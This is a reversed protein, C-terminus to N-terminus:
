IDLYGEFVLTAPGKLWVNKYGEETKDFSVQLIGGPTRLEIPSELHDYKEHIAIATATVGTGCSMTENEVGREYTRLYFDGQLSEVFNVNIGEEKYVDNYRIEHAIPIINLQHVDSIFRVYHPSGTDLIYDDESNDIHDVDKLQIEIQDGVRGKHLGDIANFIADDGIYELAHAMALICRGGNGCMTSEAGDANFYVMNFDSNESAELIILGDAGIGFRRHCLLSIRDKDLESLDYQGKFNDIMIFDNGTGHYKYFKINM